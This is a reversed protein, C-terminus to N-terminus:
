ELAMADSSIQPISVMGDLEQLLSPSQLWTNLTTDNDRQRGEVSMLTVTNAVLRSPFPGM